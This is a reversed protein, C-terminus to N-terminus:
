RTRSSQSKAAAGGGNAYRPKPIGRSAYVESAQKELEAAEADRQLGRLVAAYAFKALAVNPHDPRLNAECVKLSRLVLPEAKEFQGQELYAVGLNHLVAQHLMKRNSMGLTACGRQVQEFVRQAAKLDGAHSYYGGLDNLARLYGLDVEGYLSKYGEAADLLYRVGQESADTKSLTDGLAELADLYYSNEVGVTARRFEIVERYLREAADYNELVRKADALLMLNKNFWLNQRDM